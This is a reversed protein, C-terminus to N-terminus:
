RLMTSSARDIVCKPIRGDTKTSASAHVSPACFPLSVTEDGADDLAASGVGCPPFLTDSLTVELANACFPDM